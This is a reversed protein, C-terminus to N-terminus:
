EGLPKTKPDRLSYFRTPQILCVRKAGIGYVCEHLRYVLTGLIDRNRLIETADMITLKKEDELKTTEWGFHMMTRRVTSPSDEMTILIGPENYHEAGHYLFQLAMLTKCVRCIGVLTFVSGGLIGGGILDDLLTMGTKAKEPKM